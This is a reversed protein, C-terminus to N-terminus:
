ITRPRPSQTLVTGPTTGCEAALACTCLASMTQGPKAGRDNLWSGDHLQVERGLGLNLVKARRLKEELSLSPEPLADPPPDMLETQVAGDRYVRCYGLDHPGDAAESSDSDEHETQVGEEHAAPHPVQSYNDVVDPMTTQVDANLYDQTDVYEAFDEFSCQTANDTAGLHCLLRPLPPRVYIVFFAILLALFTLIGAMIDDYHVFDTLVYSPHRLALASNHSATATTLCTAVCTTWLVTGASTTSSTAMSDEANTRSRSRAFQNASARREALPKKRAAQYSDDDMLKFQHTRLRDALLQAASTKTLGDAYQRESSVWRVHSISERLKDKTTLIELHTRKDSGSSVQLEDRHLVDYLAKADVILASANFWAFAGENDFQYDPVTMAKLFTAAFLHSDAAEGAAQSEAALTSRAVRALKYSRWDLIQYRGAAGDELVSRHALTLLYGGQSAGDHRSSFAADTFTVVVLDEPKGIPAYELSVDSNAKAFRLAKNAEQLTRVTAGSIEGAIMSTFIQLHPSTQTAAWQLAGIVTRLHTRESESVPLDPQANRSPDITIPKIKRLYEEHSYRYGGEPLKTVVAGLFEFNDQDVLFDRFSFSQRLRDLLPGVAPHNFDGAGLLDDVHMGICCVLRRPTEASAENSEPAFMLFLCPDLPHRVFGLSEFRRVAELYWARPADVLGYIPKRLRMAVRPNTAGLLRRADAPLRVWLTRAEEHERGQLFATTIDAVFNTWALNSMIAMLCTRGLRSLTPSTSAVRGALADPDRFGQTILGAKARPSGDPHKSWKLIFHSKLVREPPAEDLTSFEWVQNTFFSELERRKAELFLLRDALSLSKEDINKADKARKEKPGAYTRHGGSLEFFAEEVTARDRQTLKFVTRGTWWEPTSTPTSTRWRDSHRHNGQVTIRDKSLAKLPLPCDGSEAPHFLTNRALVHHRVLRNDKTLEWWDHIEELRLLGDECYWGPPLTVSTDDGSDPLIDVSFVHDITEPAPPGNDHRSRSRIRSSSTFPLTEQRDLRSRRSAFSEKDGQPRYVYPIEDASHPAISSSLAPTVSNGPGTM